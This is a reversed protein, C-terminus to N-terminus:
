DTSLAAAPPTRRNYFTVSFVNKRSNWQQKAGSSLSSASGVVWFIAGPPDGSDDSTLYSVGESRVVFALPAFAGFPPLFSGGTSAFCGSVCVSSMRLEM